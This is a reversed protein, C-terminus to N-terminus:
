NASVIGATGITITKSVANNNKLRIVFSGSQLTDGRLRKFIVDSAGGTLAVNVVEVSSDFLSVENGAAGATFSTGKFLTLRDAEIHVGFQSLDRGAITRNRADSFVTLAQEVPGNLGSSSSFSGVVISLMLGLIVIVVLVEVLSFGRM